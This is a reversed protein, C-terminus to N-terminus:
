NYPAGKPCPNYLNNSNIIETVIFVFCAKINPIAKVSRSMPIAKAVEDAKVAEEPTIIYAKEIGGGYICM